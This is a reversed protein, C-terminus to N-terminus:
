EEVYFLWKKERWIKGKKDKIEIKVEYYGEPLPKEPVYVVYDEKIEVIPTIEKGNLTISIDNEKIKRLRPYFTAGIIIDNKSLIHNPLPSVIYIEPAPSKKGVLLIGLIIVVCIAGVLRPIFRVPIFIGKREEIKEIKEWVKAEFGEPLEKEKITTKLFTHLKKMRKFEESCCKCMKLHSEVEKKESEKLEGDILSHLLIKIDKCKM